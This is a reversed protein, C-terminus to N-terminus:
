GEIPTVLRLVPGAATHLRDSAGELLRLATEVLLSPIASESATGTAADHAPRRGDPLTAVISAQLWRHERTTAVCALDVRVVTDAPLERLFDELTANLLYRWRCRDRGSLASETRAECRLRIGRRAAAPSMASAVEEALGTLDSAPTQGCAALLDHLSGM